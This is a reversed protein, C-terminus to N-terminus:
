GGSEAVFMPGGSRIESPPHVRHDV